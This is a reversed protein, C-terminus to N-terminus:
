EPPTITIFPYYIHMPPSHAHFRACSRNLRKKTHPKICLNQNQVIDQECMQVYIHFRIHTYICIYICACFHTYTNTHIDTHTYIYMYVYICVYIHVYMYRYIYTYLYM